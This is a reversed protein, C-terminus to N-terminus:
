SCVTRTSHKGEDYDSEAYLWATDVFTHGESPDGVPMSIRRITLRWDGVNIGDDPIIEDFFSNPNPCARVQVYSTM